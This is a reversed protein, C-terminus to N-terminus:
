RTFLLAQDDMVVTVLRYADVLQVNGLSNAEEQM